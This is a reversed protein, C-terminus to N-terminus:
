VWFVVADMEMEMEVEWMGGSRERGVAAGWTSRLTAAKSRVVFLLRVKHEFPGPAALLAWCFPPPSRARQTFELRIGFEEEARPSTAAQNALGLDLEEYLPLQSRDPLPHTHRRRPAHLAMRMILSGRLDQVGPHQEQAEQVLRSINTRSRSSVDDAIVVSALNLQHQFENEIALGFSASVRSQSGVHSRHTSTSYHKVHQSNYLRLPQQPSRAVNFTSVSYVAPHCSTQLTRTLLAVSRFGGSRLAAQSADWRDPLGPTQDVNTSPPVTQFPYELIRRDELWHFPSPNLPYTLQSRSSLGAGSTQTRRTPNYEQIRHKLYVLSPYSPYANDSAATSSHLSKFAIDNIVSGLVRSALALVSGLIRVNVM